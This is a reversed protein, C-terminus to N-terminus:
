DALSRIVRVLASRKEYCEVARFAEILEFTQADLLQKAPRHDYLVDAPINLIKCIREIHLTPIRVSGSEYEEILEPTIGLDIPSNLSTTFEQLTLAHKVRHHRINRGIIKTTVSISM